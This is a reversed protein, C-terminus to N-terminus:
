SVTEVTWFAVRSGLQLLKGAGCMVGPLSNAFSWSRVTSRAWLPCKPDNLCLISIFLDINSLHRHLHLSRYLDYLQFIGDVFLNILDIQFSSFSAKSPDTNGLLSHQFFFTRTSGYFPYTMVHNTTKFNLLEFNFITIGKNGWRFIEANYFVDVENRNWNMHQAPGASFARVTIKFYFQARHWVTVFDFYGHM